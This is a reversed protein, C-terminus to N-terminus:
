EIFTARIEPIDHRTDLRTINDKAENWWGNTAQQFRDITRNVGEHEDIVSKIAAKESISELFDFYREDREKFFVDRKLGFTYYNKRAHCSRVKPVGGRYIHELTKLEPDPTNDVYRRINLNFDNAEIEELDVLKSYKDIELTNTFVTDIKEIDEPRLLNQAKGEREADANM